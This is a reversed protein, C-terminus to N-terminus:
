LVELYEPPVFGSDLLLIGHPVNAAFFGDGPLFNEWTEEFSTNSLSKIEELSLEHQIEEIKEDFESNEYPILELGFVSGDFDKSLKTFNIRILDFESESLPHNPDRKLIESMIPKSFFVSPGKLTIDDEDEEFGSLWETKEKPNTFISNFLKKNERIYQSSALGYEFVLDIHEHPVYTYLYITEAETSAILDLLPKCYINQKILSKNLKFLSSLM